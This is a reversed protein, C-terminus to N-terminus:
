RPESRPASVLCEWVRRLPEHQESEDPGGGAKSVGGNNKFMTWLQGIPLNADRVTSVVERPFAVNLVPNLLAVCVVRDGHANGFMEQLQAVAVYVEGEFRRKQAEM